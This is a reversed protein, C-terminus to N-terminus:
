EFENLVFSSTSPDYGMVQAMWEDMDWQEMLPEFGETQRTGLVQEMQEIEMLMKEHGKSALNGARMMYNLVNKGTSYTEFDSEKEDFSATRRKNVTMALSLITLGSFLHISDWFGFKAVRERHWLGIMICVNTRAARLCRDSFAELSERSANGAENSMIHTIQRLFFPRLLLIFCHNCRLYLSALSRMNTMQAMADPMGLECDFSMCAPLEKKWSELKLLIPRARREFHPIDDRISQWADIFVDAEAKMMTIQIRARLFDAEFFNGADEPGLPEESPYDVKIQEPQFSSWAGLESSTM